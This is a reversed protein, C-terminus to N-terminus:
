AAVPQENVTVGAEVAAKVLAAKLERKPADCDPNASLLARVADDPCIPLGARFAATVIEQIATQTRFAQCFAIPREM